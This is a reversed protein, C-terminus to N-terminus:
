TTLQESKEGKADRLRQKARGERARSGCLHQQERTRNAIPGEGHLPPNNLVVIAGDSSSAASSAPAGSLPVGYDLEEDSSNNAM